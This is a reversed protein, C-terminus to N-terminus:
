SARRSSRSKRKASGDEAAQSKPSNNEPGRGSKKGSPGLSSGDIRGGEKAGEQPAIHLLSFTGLAVRAGGAVTVGSVSGGGSSSSNSPQNLDLDFKSFYERAERHLKEGKEICWKRIEPIADQRINDYSTKIHLNPPSDSHAINEEVSVVLDDIDSAALQFGRKIDGAPIYVQSVLAVTDDKREILRASDLEALVSYPNLDQSVSRVLEAFESENGLVSLARVRGSKSRYKREYQWKGL